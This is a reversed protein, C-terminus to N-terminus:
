LSRSSRLILRQNAVEAVKLNSLVLGNVEMMGEVAAIAPCLYLRGMLPAVDLIVAPFAVVACPALPTSLGPCPCEVELINASM